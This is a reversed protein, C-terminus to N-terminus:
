SAHAVWVQLLRPIERFALQALQGSDQRLVTELVFLRGFEYRSGSCFQGTVCRTVPCRRGFFCRGLLSATRESRVSAKGLGQLAPFHVVSQSGTNFPAQASQRVALRLDDQLKGSLELTCLTEPALRFPDACVFLQRGVGADGSCRRDAGDSNRDIVFPDAAAPAPERPLPGIRLGPWGSKM